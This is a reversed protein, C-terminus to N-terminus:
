LTRLLFKVTFSCFMNRCLVIDLCCPLQHQPFCKKSTEKKKKKRHFGVLFNFQEQIKPHFYFVQSIVPNAGKCTKLAYLSILLLSFFIESKLNSKMKTVCLTSPILAPIVNQYTLFLFRTYITRLKQSGKLHRYKPIYDFLQRLGETALSLTCVHRLTSM